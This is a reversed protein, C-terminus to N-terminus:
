TKLYIIHVKYPALKFREQIRMMLISTGVSPNANNNSYFCVRRGQEVLTSSDEGWCVGNPFRTGSTDYYAVFHINLVNEYLIGTPLPLLVSESVTSSNFVGAYTKHDFKDPILKYRLHSNTTDICLVKTSAQDLVNGYDVVREELTKSATLSVSNIM